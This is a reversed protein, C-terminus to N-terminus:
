VHARGIEQWFSSTALLVANPTARFQDILQTRPMSGQVLVPYPLTMELFRQVTRLVAYSTFLVFARGRSRRLLEITERAAASAFADSRPAPMQRPLYVLAQSRYDFESPVRLEDCERLGLRTRVYDFTGDVALTASTLVVSRMRDFLSEQVIRSVDIPSARLFVGRGRTEIFYVYAPDAARMLFRLDDRLEGARRILSAVAEAQERSTGDATPESGSSLRSLAFSAELGELAPKEPLNLPTTM